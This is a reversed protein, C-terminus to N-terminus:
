TMIFDIFQNKSLEGRSVREFIRLYLEDESIDTFEDDSEDDSEYDFVYGPLPTFPFEPGKYLQRLDIDKGAAWYQALLRLNGEEPAQQIDGQNAAGTDAGTDAGSNTGTISFSTYIDADSSVGGTGTVIELKKLLEEPSSAVVAARYELAHNIRQLSRAVSEATISVDGKLFDRM